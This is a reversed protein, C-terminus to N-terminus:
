RRLESLPLEDDSDDPSALSALSSETNEGAVPADCSPADGSPNVGIQTPAAASKAAETAMPEPKSRTGEATPACRPSLSPRPPARNPKAEQLPHVQRSPTRTAYEALSERLVDWRLSGNGNASSLFSSRPALGLSESMTMSSLDVSYRCSGHVIEVMGTRRRYRQRFHWATELTDAAHGSSPTWMHDTREALQPRFSWVSM